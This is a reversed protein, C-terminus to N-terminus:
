GLSCILPVIHGRWGMEGLYIKNHFIEFVRSLQFFKVTFVRIVVVCLKRNVDKQVEKKMNRDRWREM